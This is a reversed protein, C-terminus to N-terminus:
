HHSDDEEADWLKSVISWREGDHLLHFYDIVSGHPDTERITATAVRGTIEIALISHDYTEPAPNAGVWEFLGEIPAVIQEDGLYGSLIAIPHFAKRLVEVNATRMGEAYYSIVERIEEDGLSISM